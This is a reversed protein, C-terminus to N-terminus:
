RSKHTPGQNPNQHQDKKEFIQGRTNTKPRQGGESNTDIKKAPDNTPVDVKKAM